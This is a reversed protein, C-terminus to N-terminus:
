VCWDSSATSSGGTPSCTGGPAFTTSNVSTIQVSLVTRRAAAMIAPRSASGRTMAHTTSALSAVPGTRSSFRVM